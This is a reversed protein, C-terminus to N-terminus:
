DSLIQPRILLPFSLNREEGVTHPCLLAATQLALSLARGLFHILWGAGSDHVERGGSSHPNFKSWTLWKTYPIQKPVGLCDLVTVITSIKSFNCLSAM